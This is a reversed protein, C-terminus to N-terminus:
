AAVFNAATLCPEGDFRYAALPGGAGASFDVCALHPTLLRPFRTPALWYHGIFTPRDLPPPTWFREISADPLSPASPGIYARRYSSAQPDWWRTRISAREVGDADSLSQGPPLPAEPGKLLTEIARSFATDERAALEVVGPILRAGNRLAPELWRAHSPSWCAHVVRFAPTEIWLPRDMFWAIWERHEASDLAIEKLFAAHQRAHIAGRAGDRQRLYLGPSKPDRTAFAIANFEHNGLCAEAAGAEVMARVMHLTRRQQPGRDILDGVFIAQRQDHRWVGLRFSYGLKTLLAALRDAQGHVDGIIDVPM